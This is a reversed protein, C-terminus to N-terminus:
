IEAWSTRRKALMAERKQTSKKIILEGKELKGM